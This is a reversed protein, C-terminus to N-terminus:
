GHGALIKALIAVSLGVTLCAAVLVAAPLLPEM